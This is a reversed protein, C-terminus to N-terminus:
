QKEFEYEGDTTVYFTNGGEYITADGKVKWRGSDLQYAVGAQLRVKGGSIRVLETTAETTNEQVTNSEEEKSDTSNQKDGTNQKKPNEAENKQPKSVKCTVNVTNGAKDEAAIVYDKKAPKLTVSATTGSFTVKKGNLIVSKLHDDSVTVTLKEVKYTEGTKAGTITPAVSDIKLKGVKVAATKAGDEKRQLYITVDKTQEVTLSEAYTGDETENILYGSEPTITVAGQYWGDSGEKGKLTYPNQQTKLYDITFDATKTVAKYNTTEAFEARATYNGKATPVETTYASDAEGQKKYSFTIQDTGNTDSSVTAKPQKQGVLWSKQTFEASGEAKTIKGDTYTETQPAEYQDADTGSLSYTVTITKNEGADATDYEAKAEVTVNPSNDTIGMVTGMQFGKVETKGDYTKEKEMVPAEAELMCVTKYEAQLTAGGKAYAQLEAVSQIASQGTSWNQFIQKEKTLGNDTVIEAAKPLEAAYVTGDTGVAIPAIKELKDNTLFYVLAGRIVSTEKVIVTGNEDITNDKLVYGKAFLEELMDYQLPGKPSYYICAANPSSYTGGELIASGGTVRVAAPQDNEQKAANSQITGGTVYLSGSTVCVGNSHQSIITAGSMSLSGAKIQIADSGAGNASITGTGMLNLEAGNIILLPANVVMSSITHGNMDLALSSVKGNGLTMSSEVTIDTELRASAKSLQDMNSVVAELDAAEQILYTGDSQTVEQINKAEVQQLEREMHPVAMFLLIGTLVLALVRKGRQNM